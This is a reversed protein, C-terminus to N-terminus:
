SVAQVTGKLEDSYIHLLADACINSTGEIHQIEFDFQSLIGLWQAQQVSLNKQTILDKLAEHDTLVVFRTSHLMHQFKQLSLVMALVEWHTVLYNQQATNFKGSWSATVPATQWQKGEGIFGCAGTLSADTIFHIPLSEQKYRLAVHHRERYEEVICQTDRFAHEETGEWRFIGTGSARKTLVAMPIHIGACNLALYSLAGLYGTLQVKNVPTKWKSISNVKNPDMKMGKENIMHSLILLVQIFFQMNSPSLHFKEKKLIDSVIQIHRVHDEITDLFIKIDDLYVFVFVGIHKSFMHNLQGM